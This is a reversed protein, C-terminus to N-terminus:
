NQAVIRVFKVQKGEDLVVRFWEIGHLPSSKEGFDAVLTHYTTLVIDVDELMPLFAKRKHGHYKITKLTGDLHSHARL